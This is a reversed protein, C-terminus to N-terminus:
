IINVRKFFQKRHAPPIDSPSCSLSSQSSYLACPPDSFMQCGADEACRVACEAHSLEADRVVASGDTMCATEFFTQIVEAPCYAVLLMLLSLIFTVKRYEM